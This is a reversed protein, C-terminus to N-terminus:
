FGETCVLDQKAGIGVGAHALPTRRATQMAFPTEFLHESFHGMRGDQDGVKREFLFESYQRAYRAEHDPAAGTIGFIPMSPEAGSDDDGPM